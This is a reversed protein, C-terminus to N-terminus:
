EFESSNILDLRILRKLNEDIVDDTMKRKNKSLAAQAPFQPFVGGCWDNVKM